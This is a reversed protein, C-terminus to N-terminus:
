RIVSGDLLSVVTGRPFSKLRAIRAEEKKRMEEETAPDTIRRNDCIMKLVPTAEELKRVVERNFIITRKM